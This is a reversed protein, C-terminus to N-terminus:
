KLNYEEKLKEAHERHMKIEAKYEEYQKTYGLLEVKLKELKEEAEEREVKPLYKIDETLKDIQNILPSIKSNHFNIMEDSCQSILSMLSYYMPCIERQWKERYKYYIGILGAIIFIIIIISVVFGLFIAFLIENTM